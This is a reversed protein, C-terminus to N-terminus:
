GQEAHLLFGDRGRSADHGHWGDGDLSFVCLERVTQAFVFPAL